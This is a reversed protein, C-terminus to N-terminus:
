AVGLYARVVAPDAAVAQPTGHALVQGESLVTVRDAVQRVLRMDHEVLLVARGSEAIERLLLRLVRREESSMGAAPEDLLLASAGTALTRAIQLVRHEFGDLLSSTRSTDQLGAATLAAATRRERERQSRRGDPTRLVERLGILRGQDRVRAGIMVQTVADLDPLVVVRQLTRAVGQKVRGSTSRAAPSANIVVEGDHASIAGAAVRLATSKGSGNPGVLAHVEGRRLELDIGSLAPVANYRVHVDHMALVVEPVPDTRLQEVVPLDVPRRPRSRQWQDLRRRQTLALVLLAVTLLERARGTDVSMTDALTNAVHPLATLLAVGLVPGWWTATGGILVAVFLQLSLLPSYDPPAVVGHLVAAGAGGIAGLTAALALISRRRRQVPVGLSEALVPGSRLAALDLGWASRRTTALAAAVVAAIATAILAHLWPHVVVTIGLSRSVLHAPTQATRGQAGGSLSPFVQLATYAVWALAWTALALPGGELRGAAFGVLYGGIGAIAVAVLAAIGLPVHHAHLAFTGFAGIAVFAGQGLIPLGAFSVAIALGYAAVLLYLNAALTIM